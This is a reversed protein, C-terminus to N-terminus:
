KMIVGGFKFYPSEMPITEGALLISAAATSFAAFIM